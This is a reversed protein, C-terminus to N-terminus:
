GVGESAMLEADSAAVAEPEDIVEMFTCAFEVVGVAVGCFECDSLVEEMSDVAVFSCEDGAATAEFVVFETTSVWAGDVVAM